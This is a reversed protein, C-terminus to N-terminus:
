RQVRRNLPVEIVLTVAIVVLVALGSAFTLWMRASGERWSLAVLLTALLALTVLLPM